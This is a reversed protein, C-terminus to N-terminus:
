EVDAYELVVRLLNNYDGATAKKMFEQAEKELGAKLLAKKVKGIILFANGDRGILKVKPKQM